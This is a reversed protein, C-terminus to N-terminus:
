HLDNDEKDEIKQDDIAEAVWTTGDASPTLLCGMDELCKRFVRHQEVNAKIVFTCYKQEM